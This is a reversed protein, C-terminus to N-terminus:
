SCNPTADFPANTDYNKNREFCINKRQALRDGSPKARSEKFVYDLKDSVDNVKDNDWKKAYSDTVLKFSSLGILIFVITEWLPHKTARYCWIRIM